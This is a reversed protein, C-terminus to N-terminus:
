EADKEPQIAGISAATDRLIQKSGSVADKLEKLQNLVKETMLDIQDATEDVKATADALVGNVQRYLQEARDRAMREAREARRYAELEEEAPAKAKQAQAEALQAKLAKNEDFLERIRAAQEAVLPDVDDAKAAPAVPEAAPMNRLYELESKLQNLESTHKTNIYEIYRVVDDRNFGNLATRFNMQTAM